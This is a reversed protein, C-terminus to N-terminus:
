ATDSRTWFIPGRGDRSLRINNYAASHRMRDQQLIHKSTLPLTDSSLQVYTGRESGSSTVPMYM